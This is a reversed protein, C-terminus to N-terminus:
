TSFIVSKFFKVLTFQEGCQLNLVNELFLVLKLITKFWIKLQLIYITFYMLYILRLCLVLSNVCEYISM